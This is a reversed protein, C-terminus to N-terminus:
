GEDMGLRDATVLIAVGLIVIILNAFLAYDAIWDVRAFVERNFLNLVWGMIPQRWLHDVAGSIGMLTIIFGVAGLIQKM